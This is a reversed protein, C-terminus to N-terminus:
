AGPPKASYFADHHAILRESLAQAASLRQETITAGPTGDKLLTALSAVLSALYPSTPIQARLPMGDNTFCKLVELIEELTDAIRDLPDQTEM